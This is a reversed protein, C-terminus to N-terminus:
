ELLHDGIPLREAFARGVPECFGSARGSSLVCLGCFVCLGCLIWSKILRVFFVTCCGGLTPFMASNKCATGAHFFFEITESLFDDGGGHLDMSCKTGPHELGRVVGAEREFQGVPPQPNLTL